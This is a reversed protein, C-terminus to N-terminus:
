CGLQLDIAESVVTKANDNLSTMHIAKNRKLYTHISKLFVLTWKGQFMHKYKNFVKLYAAM